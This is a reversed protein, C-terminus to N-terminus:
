KNHSRQVSSLVKPCQISTCLCKFQSQTNEQLPLVSKHTKIQWTDTTFNESNPVQVTILVFKWFSLSPLESHHRSHWYKLSLSHQFKAIFHCEFIHWKPGRSSLWSYHPLACWWLTVLVRLWPPPQTLCDQWCSLKLSKLNLSDGLILKNSLSFVSSNSNLGSLDGTRPQLPPLLQPFHDTTGGPPDTSCSCSVCWVCWHHCPTKTFSHSSAKRM